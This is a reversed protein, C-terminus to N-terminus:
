GPWEVRRAPVPDGVGDLALPDPGQHNRRGPAVDPDARIRSAVDLGCGAVRPPALLIAVVRQAPRRAVLRLEAAHELEALDKGVNALPHFAVQASAVQGPPLDQRRDHGQEGLREDANAIVLVGALVAREPEGGQAAPVDLDVARPQAERETALAADAVLHRDGVPPERADHLLALVKRSLLQELVQVGSALALRDGRVVHIGVQALGSAAVDGRFIEAGPGAGHEGGLLKARDPRRLGPPLRLAVHKAGDVRDRVPEAIRARDAAFVVDVRSQQARIQHPQRRRQWGCRRAREAALVPGGSEAAVFDAHELEQLLGREVLLGPPLTGRAQGQALGTAAISRDRDAAPGYQSCPFLPRRGLTLLSAPRYHRAGARDSGVPWRPTM